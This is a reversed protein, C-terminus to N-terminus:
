AASGALALADGLWDHRHEPPPTWSRSWGLWQLAVLLRAAALEAASPATAGAAAGYAAVVRDREAPDWAGSTLAALDLVGSGTGATEWDVLRARDDGDILVNSPYAEGHVLVAPLEALREVAARAAPEAGTLAPTHALARDVWRGLYAADHRLLRAGQPVPAAHLAALRAAAAEWAGMDDAQWLPIGEVLELFLWARGILTGLCRPAGAAAPLLPYAELERLPDALFGPRSAGDRAGCDKFLLPALGEARVVEMPASSAYAWPERELEGPDRGLVSALASRLESDSVPM